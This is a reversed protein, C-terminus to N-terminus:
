PLAVHLPDFQIIIDGIEKFRDIWSLLKMVIDRLVINEGKIEIKCSNEKKDKLINETFCRVQSITDLTNGEFMIDKLMKREEDLDKSSLAKSWLSQGKVIGTVTLNNQQEEKNGVETHAAHKVTVM